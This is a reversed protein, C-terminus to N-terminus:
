NAEFYTISLPPLTVRGETNPLLSRLEWFKPKGPIESLVVKDIPCSETEAKTIQYRRGLSILKIDIPQEFTNVVIGGYEDRSRNTAIIWDLDQCDKRENIKSKYKAYFIASSTPGLDSKHALLLPYKKVVKNLMNLVPGFPGIDLSPESSSSEYMKRVANNSPYQAKWTKGDSWYGVGSYTLFDHIHTSDVLPHAMLLLSFKANWLASTHFKRHKTLEGGATYRWETVIFRIHRTNPYHKILQQHSNLGKINANYSLGGGYLHLSCYYILQADKGLNRLVALSWALYKAYSRTNKNSNIMKSSTVSDFHLNNDDGACSFINISLRIDPYIKKASRALNRVFEAYIAPNETTRIYNENGIEWALYLDLYGHEKVWKLKYMNEKILASMQTSTM